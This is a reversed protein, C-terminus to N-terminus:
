TAKTPTTASYNRVSKMMEGLSLFFSFSGISTAVKKRESAREHPGFSVCKAPFSALFNVPRYFHRSIPKTHSNCAGLYASRILHHAKETEISM